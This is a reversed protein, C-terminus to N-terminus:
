SLNKQLVATIKPHIVDWDVSASKTATIFTHVGFVSEVGEVSLLANALNHDVPIDSKSFSFSKESVQVSVDYKRAQPNPTESIDVSISSQEVVPEPNLPAQQQQSTQPPKPPTPQPPNQPAAQTSSNSKSKGKYEKYLKQAIRRITQILITRM